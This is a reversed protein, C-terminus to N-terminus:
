GTTVDAHRENKAMERLLECPAFREGLRGALAELQGLVNALGLDRAYKVIGGRFDPFGTGLVMAVDAHSEREVLREDLVYFAECAMRMVLRSLIEEAAVARPALGERRRAQDLAERCAPNDLRDHRGKEYRYVGAGAKQGVLGREVLAAVAGPLPGHRPFARSLVADTDALIDIGAMDILTLPGMPFGFGCMAEDIAEAEAGEQLLWFAEKFYPIMLRNVFFGERNGVLVPTKRLAKVFATAAAVVEPAAGDRRIVEVLPMAHAPNFFHLGVLREPRALGEALVDLSITSTNTALIAGPGVAAEASRLVAQKVAADEFVAEIVLDAQAIAPWDSAATLSGMTEEMRQPSLRGQSVRKQLSAAIRERAKAVAAPDKDIMVVPLRATLVAQAIGTGMSGAGIVAVRPSVGLEGYLDKKGGVRAVPSETDTGTNGTKGMERTAFFLYIRNRAATGAMCQAFATQEFRLGAEFSENLGTRVAEVILSPAILEAPGGALGRQAQDLATENAAPDALKDVRLRTRSIPSAVRNERSLREQDHVADPSFLTADGIKSRLLDAACATLDDGECVADVLGMEMAQRADVMGGGLLMKLAPEVGVLRPLRQTGGAGPNIALKVEPMALLTGRTCVRYHCAMALELAGGIVKGAVAAVVPKPSDEIAAFAEQFVRSIRVADQSTKIDRFLAIDAGASFHSSSGTILIGDTDADGAARELCAALEELTALTLANVPPDDLRLVSLGESVSYDIRSM